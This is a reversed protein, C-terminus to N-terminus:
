PFAFISVDFNHNSSSSLKYRQKPRCVPNTIDISRMKMKRELVAHGRSRLGLVLSFDDDTTQLLYGNYTFGSNLFDWRQFMDTILQRSMGIQPLNLFHRFPWRNLLAHHESTLLPPFSSLYVLHLLQFREEYRRCSFAYIALLDYMSSDQEVFRLATCEFRGYWANRQIHGVNTLNCRQFEAVIIQETQKFSHSAKIGKRPFLNFGEM